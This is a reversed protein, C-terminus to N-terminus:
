HALSSRNGQEKNRAVFSRDHQQQEIARDHGVRELEMSQLM